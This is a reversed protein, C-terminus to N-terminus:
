LARPSPMEVDLEEAVVAVRNWTKEPIPIGNRERIAKTRFEIEGPILVEDSPDHTPNSKVHRFLADANSRFKDVDMFRAIDITIIFTGNGEMYEPLYACGYGTLVGGLLEILLALGYGKYGGMPLLSGMTDPGQGHLDAPDTSPLGDKDLIWGAPIKQDKESALRVRGGAVVSTSTDMILPHTENSPLGFAIPNAGIARKIGGFPAVLGGQPGSACFILGIVKQDAAMKAWGWLM